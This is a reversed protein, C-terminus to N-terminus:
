AERPTDDFDDLPAEAELRVIEDVVEISVGAPFGRGQLFRLLRERLKDKGRFAKLRKQAARRASELEGEEGYGEALALEAIEQSVGIGSLERAMSRRGMPRARLRRRVWSRAAAEDNLYGIEEYRHLLAEIEAGPFKRGRLKRGLEYRTHSRLALIRLASAEMRERVSALGEGQQNDNSTKQNAFSM